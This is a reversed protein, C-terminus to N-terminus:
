PHVQSRMPWPDLQRRLQIGRDGWLPGQRRGLNRGCFKCELPDHVKGDDALKVFAVQRTTTDTYQLASMSTTASAVAQLANTAGATRSASHAADSFQLKSYGM